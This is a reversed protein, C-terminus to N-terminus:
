VRSKIRMQHRRLLSIDRRASVNRSIVDMALTLLCSGAAKASMRGPFALRTLSVFLATHHLKWLSICRFERLVSCSRNAKGVAHKARDLLPSFRINRQKQMDYATYDGVERSKCCPAAWLHQGIHLFVSRQGGLYLVGFRSTCISTSADNGLLM